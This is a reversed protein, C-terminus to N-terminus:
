FRKSFLKMEFLYEYPVDLFNTKPVCGQNIQDKFNWYPLQRGKVNKKFKIIGKFAVLPLQFLKLVNLSVVSHIARAFDNGSDLIGICAFLSDLVTQILFFLLLFRTVSHIKQVNLEGNIMHYFQKLHRHVHQELLVDGGLVLHDGPEVLPPGGIGLTLITNRLVSCLLVSM